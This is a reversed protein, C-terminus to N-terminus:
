GKNKLPFFIWNSNAFVDIQSIMRLGIGILELDNFLQHFSISFLVGGVVACASRGLDVNRGSFGILKKSFYKCKREIGCGIGSIVWCLEIPM